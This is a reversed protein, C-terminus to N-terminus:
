GLRLVTAGPDGTTPASDAGLRLVGSAPVEGDREPGAPALTATVRYSRGTYRPPGSPAQTYTAFSGTLQVRDGDRTLRLDPGTLDAYETTARAFGASEPDRPPDPVLCNYTPLVLHALARDGDSSVSLVPRAVTVGVARRELLVAAFSARAALGATGPEGSRSAPEGTAAGATEGEGTPAGTSAPRATSSGRERVAGPGSGLLAILVAVLVLVAAATVMALLTRQASLRETAHRGPRNRRPARVATAGATGGPSVTISTTTTAGPATTPPPPPPPSGPPHDLFGPLDDVEVAQRVGPRPPEAEGDAPAAPVAVGPSRRRAALTAAAGGILLGVLLALTLWAALAPTSTTAASMEAGLM